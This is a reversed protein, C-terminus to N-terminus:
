WGERGHCVGLGHQLNQEFKLGCKANWPWHSETRGRSQLERKGLDDAWSISGSRNNSQNRMTLHVSGACHRVPCQKWADVDEPVSDSLVHGQHRVQQHMDALKRWADTESSAEIKVSVRVKTKWRGICFWSRGGLRCDSRLLGAFWSICPLTDGKSAKPLRLPPRPIQSPGARAGGAAPNVPLFDALM